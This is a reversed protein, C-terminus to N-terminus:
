FDPEWRVVMQGEELKVQLVVEDLYPILCEEAEAGAPVVRLVDNSGTELFGTVAGLVQGNETIVTLGMLDRWYYEGPPLTPLAKSPVAIHCNTLISVTEPSNYAAVKAVWADKHAKLADLKLRQWTQKSEIHWHAQYNVLNQPPETFSYAHIWGHVGYPAGLRGIIVWDSESTSLHARKNLGGLGSSLSQISKPLLM